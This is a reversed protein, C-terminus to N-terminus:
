KQPIVCYFVLFPFNCFCFIGLLTYHTNGSLKHKVNSAGVAGDDHSGSGTESDSESDLVSNRFIKSLGFNSLMFM